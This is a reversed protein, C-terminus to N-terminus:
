LAIYITSSKCSAVADSLRNYAPWIGILCLVISNGKISLFLMDDDSQMKRASCHREWIVIHSEATEATMDGKQM